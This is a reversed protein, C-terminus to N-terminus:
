LYKTSINYRQRPRMRRFPEYFDPLCYAATLCTVAISTQSHEARFGNSLFSKFVRGLRSESITGNIERSM